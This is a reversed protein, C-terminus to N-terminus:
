AKEIFKDKRYATKYQALIKNVQVKFLEACEDCLHCGLKAYFNDVDEGRVDAELRVDLSEQKSMDKGCNDCYYKIM